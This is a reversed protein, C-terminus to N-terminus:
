LKGRAKQGRGHDLTSPFRHFLFFEFRQGIEKPFKLSVWGRIGWRLERRRSGLELVDFVTLGKGDGQQVGALKALINEVGQGEARDGRGDDRADHVVSPAARRIADLM